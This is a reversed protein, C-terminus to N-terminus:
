VNTPFIVRSHFTQTYATNGPTCLQILFTGLEYKNKSEEFAVTQDDYVGVIEEGIIVLYKGAFKNVLEEQHSLYYDFEKKLM